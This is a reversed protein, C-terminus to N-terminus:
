TTLGQEDNSIDLLFVGTPRAHIRLELTTLWTMGNRRPTTRPERIFSYTAVNSPHPPLAFDVWDFRGTWRLTERVFQRLVWLQSPRLILRCTVTGHGGTWRPYAWTAADMEDSIINDPPTYDLGDALPLQPLGTPWTPNAM